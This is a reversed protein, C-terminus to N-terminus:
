EFKTTSSQVYDSVAEIIFYYMDVLLLTLDFQTESVLRFCKNETLVTSYMRRVDEGEEPEQCLNERKVEASSSGQRLTRISHKQIKRLVAQWSMEYDM